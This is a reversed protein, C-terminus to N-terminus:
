MPLRGLNWLDLGQITCVRVLGEVGEGMELQVRHLRGHRRIVKFIVRADNGSEAADSGERGGVAEVASFSVQM